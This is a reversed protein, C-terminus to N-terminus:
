IFSYYIRLLSLLTWVNFFSLFYNEKLEFAGALKPLIRGIIQIAMKPGQLLVFVFGTQKNILLPGQLIREYREFSGEMSNLPEQWYNPLIRGIIQFAGTPAQLLM